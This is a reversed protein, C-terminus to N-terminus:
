VAEPRTYVPITLREGGRLASEHAVLGPVTMALADYVDIAPRRDHVLADIFEHTLFPHSCDHGSPHRLPPPLMDSKWHQPQDFKEYKVVKRQAPDAKRIAAADRRVIPGLGNATPDHFSMKEGYWEARECLGVPGRWWVAMRSSNGGDTQFLATQNWYPNNYPNEKLIPDEDGWGTCVVSTLREGSVGVINATCHTLYKMPPLGYRWNRSGDEDIFLEEIGPHLYEAESYFIRGFNGQRFWQRATIVSQHYWTTEAMMYTLGTRKVTQLLQECEELTMGAPVACIVHKGANLCAEAHRVHDPAGTFIGVAEVQPDKILEELSPYTKRCGYVQALYDRREPILDSVAEVVCQPHEHWQFQAGFRGGVIGMRIKRASSPLASATGSTAPDAPSAFSASGLGALIVGGAQLFRRRTLAEGDGGAGMDDSFTDHHVTM